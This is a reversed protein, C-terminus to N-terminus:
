YFDYHQYVVLGCTDTYITGEKDTVTLTLKYTKGTELGSDPIYVVYERQFKTYGQFLVVDIEAGSKDKPDTVSWSYSDCGYPGFLNLTDDSAVYYEGFLMQREDFDPDGPKPAYYETIENFNSNYDNLITQIDNSCSVMLLLFSITLIVKCKRM